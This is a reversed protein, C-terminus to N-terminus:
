FEFINNRVVVEHTRDQCVYQTDHALEEM